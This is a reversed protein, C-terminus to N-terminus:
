HANKEPVAVQEAPRAGVDVRTRQGAFPASGAMLHHKKALLPMWLAVVDAPRPQHPGLDSGKQRHEHEVAVFPELSTQKMVQAAGLALAVDLQVGLREPTMKRGVEDEGIVDKRARRDRRRNPLAEGDLHV